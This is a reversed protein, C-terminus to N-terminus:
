LWLIKQSNYTVYKWHKNHLTEGEEEHDFVIVYATFGSKLFYCFGKSLKEKFKLIM